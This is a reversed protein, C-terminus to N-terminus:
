LMIKIFANERLTKVWESFRKEMERQLLIRRIEPAVEEFSRPSGGARRDVLQLLQLGAPTQVPVVEGPRAKNLHESLEQAMDSQSIFGLDTEGVAFKKAIEPFSVGQRAAKIIEVSKQLVEEKQAPTAGPPYPLKIIRLHMQSGGEKAHAEYFRRVEADSVTVKGGVAVQVLREQQIQESIQNKLEKLTLGEKALAQNLAADDPLGNRKKFEQLAQDVEKAAVAIGRRKAEANALKRDILAELAQRHLAQGERGRPPLGSQGQMMKSMQELESLTIIEDNVQAVIRDLVETAGPGALFLQALCVLLLLMMSRGSLINM